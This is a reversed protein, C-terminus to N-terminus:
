KGTRPAKTARPTPQRTAQADPCDACAAAAKRKPTRLRPAAAAASAAATTNSNRLKSVSSNKLPVAKTAAATAVAEDLTAKKAARGAKGTTATPKAGPKAWLLLTRVPNFSKRHIACPGHKHIAAV